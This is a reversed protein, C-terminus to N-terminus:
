KHFRNVNKRINPVYYVEQLVIGKEVNAISTKLFIDGIGKARLTAGNQKSPDAATNIVKSDMKRFNTFWERRKCEYHTCGSDLFWFDEIEVNNLPSICRLGKETKRWIKPTFKTRKRDVTRQL